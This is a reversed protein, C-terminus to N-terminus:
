GGDRIAGDWPGILGDQLSRDLRGSAITGVYTGRYEVEFELGTNSTVDAFPQLFQVVEDAPTAPGPAGLCTVDLAYGVTRIPEDEPTTCSSDDTEDVFVPPGLTWRLNQFTPALSRVVAVQENSQAPVLFVLMQEAQM